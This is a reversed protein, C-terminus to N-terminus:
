VGQLFKIHIKLNLSLSTKTNIKGLKLPSAKEKHFISFNFIIVCYQKKNMLYSFVSFDLLVLLLDAHLSISVKISQQYSYIKYSGSQCSGTFSLM